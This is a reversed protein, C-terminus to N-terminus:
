GTLSSSSRFSKLQGGPKAVLGVLLSVLLSEVVVLLGVVAVVLLLGVLGVLRRPLGQEV